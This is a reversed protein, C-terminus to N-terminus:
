KDMIETGPKTHGGAAGGTPSSRKDHKIFFYLGAAFAVLLILGLSTSDM